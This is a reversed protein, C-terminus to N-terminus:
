HKSHGNTKICMHGSPDIPRGCLPCAYTAPKLNQARRMTWWRPQATM